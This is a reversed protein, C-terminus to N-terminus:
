LSPQTGAALTGCLSTARQGTAYPDTGAPGGDSAHEGALLPRLRNVADATCNQPGAEVDALTVHTQRLRLDEAAFRFHVERHVTFLSAGDAQAPGAGATRSAAPRLPYVFTHDAIVELTRDAAEAYRLEGTVRVGSGALAVQAPDFRVLWGTAAHLGDASPAAMSRNFQTYQDPALLDRLQEASGGMLVAPDLSSTVVYQRAIKLADRVDSYAFHATARAGPVNVGSAGTRFAAAPSHAFLGAPTGGPVAGRPALPVVVSHLPQARSVPPPRYPHHIGMFVATGFALVLLALAVLLRGPGRRPWGARSRVARAHRGMREQASFEQLRAARIFSEDFVVSRYEDDGGSPLGEPSGEPPEDRGAM